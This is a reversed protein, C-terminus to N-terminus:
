LLGSRYCYSQSMCFNFNCVSHLHDALQQAWSCGTRKTCLIFFPDLFCKSIDFWETKRLNVRNATSAKFDDNM